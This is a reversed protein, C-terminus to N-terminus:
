GLDADVAAIVDAQQRRGAVAYRRRAALYERRREGRIRSRCLLAAARGSPSLLIINASKPDVTERYNRLSVDDIRAGKLAISGFLSKTELPVRPSQKLAEDRTAFAQPTTPAAGANPNPSGAPLQQPTGTAPNIPPQAAAQQQARAQQERQKEMQPAGVFYQWGILVAISLAIALILNKTDQTM